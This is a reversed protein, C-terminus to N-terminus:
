GFGRIRGLDGMNCASEKSDSGGCFLIEKNYLDIDLFVFIIMQVKGIKKKTWNLDTVPFLYLLHKFRM